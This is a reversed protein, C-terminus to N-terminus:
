VEQSYISMAKLQNHRHEVCLHDKLGLGYECLVCDREAIDLYSNRGCIMFTCRPFYRNNNELKVWIRCIVYCDPVFVLCSIECVKMIHYDSLEMPLSLCLSMAFSVSLQKEFADSLSPLVATSYLAM